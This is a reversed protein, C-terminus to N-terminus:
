SIVRLVSCTVFTDRGSFTENFTAANKKQVEPASAMRTNLFEVKGATDDKYILCFDHPLPHYKVM